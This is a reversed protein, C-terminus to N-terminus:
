KILESLPKYKDERGISKALGEHTIWGKYTQVGRALAPNEEIARKLGYKALQKVYALTERCLAPTSDMPVRGPINPVCYHIVGHKTFIEKDRDPNSVSSEFCGGQDISIDVAVSGPKMEKIMWEPVLKQQLEGPIHSAGILLDVDKILHAIRKQDDPNDHDHKIFWLKYFSIKMQRYFLKELPAFVEPNKDLLYLMKPNTAAALKAAEAGANGLGLIMVKSEPGIMMGRPNELLKVADFFAKRGAIKSMAALIHTGQDNAITEYGLSTIKWRLLASLLAPNAALHLFCFLLMNKNLYLYKFEEELPQKVKILIDAEKWVRLYPAIVAGSDKYCTDPFGSRIGSSKEVLVKADDASLEEAGNPMLAVRSENIMIERPCSVVLSM